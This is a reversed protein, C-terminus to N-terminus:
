EPKQNWKGARIERLVRKACGYKCAKADRVYSRCAKRVEHIFLARNEEGYRAVAQELQARTAMTGALRILRAHDPTPAEQAFKGIINGAEFEAQFGECMLAIRVGRLVSERSSETMKAVNM